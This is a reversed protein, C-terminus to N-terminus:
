MQKADQYTTEIMAITDEESSVSLSIVTTMYIVGQTEKGDSHMPWTMTYNKRVQLLQGNAGLEFTVQYEAVAVTDSPYPDGQVTFTIWQTDGETGSEVFTIEQADWDFTRLWPQDIEGEADQFGEVWGTDANEGDAPEYDTHIYRSYKEGDKVFFWTDHRWNVEDVFSQYLWDDGDAYWLQTSNDNLADPGSFQRDIQMAYVEKSQFEKLAVRCKLLLAEEANEMTDTHNWNPHNHSADTCNPDQCDTAIELPIEMPQQSYKRYSGYTDELYAIWAEQEAPLDLVIPENGTDYIYDLMTEFGYKDILYWVFSTALGSGPKDYYDESFYTGFDWRVRQIAKVDDVDELIHIISDNCDGMLYLQPQFGNKACYRLWESKYPHDGTVSIYDAMGVDLYYPVQLTRTYPGTIWYAYAIPLDEISSVQALRYPWSTTSMPDSMFEVTLDNDYSDFGLREQQAAMYSTTSEFCHKVQAYDCHLFDDDATIGSYFRNNWNEPLYFTAYKCKVLYEHYEGGIGYLIETPVYDLGNAAYWGSLAANFEAVGNVDGSKCILTQYAEEGHEAIYERAFRVATNRNIEMEGDSVFEERFCLWNLDRATNDTLHTQRDAAEKWGEEVAIYDAYGYAAGYNAYGGCTLVILKAGYDVSAFDGGLYLYQEDAWAGSYDDVLVLEPKTELGLRSLIGDSYFVCADRDEQSIKPDFHYVAHSSEYDITKGNFTIAPNFREAVRYATGSDAYTLAPIELPEFAKEPSTLLFVAVFVAAAVALVTIWFAPKKFSLVHMVREKVSVEAFAVPCAAISRHIASCSVLAASYAKRQSLDMTAVVAEDCAMELDRCLLVYGLWVMPNFWHLALATYGILKWWHDRRAIHSHEHAVVFTQEQETLGLPLYIQPRLFGLVFATDIKSCIWVGETLIVSDEVTKKLQLYSLLSVLAMAAVGALWIYPIWFQWDPAAEGTPVQVDSSLPKGVIVNGHRDLIEGRSQAADSVPESVLPKSVLVNGQADLIEGRSQAYDDEPAAGPQAWEQQSVRDYDPQLSVPSEIQVPVLLRLGALLWLLCITRKPAKKLALRLLMVALIVVSGQLSVQVIDSFIPKM